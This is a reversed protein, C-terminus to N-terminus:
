SSKRGTRRSASRLGTVIADMTDAADRNVEALAHIYVETTAMRSHRLTAQIAKLPIGEGALYSGCAHRLDHIHASVGAKGCVREWARNVNRPELATGASTTFVLDADLWAKARMRAQRQQRQWAKLAELLGDGAPVTAESADTKLEKAVLRTRGDEGRIRQITLSLAITRAEFDIDGWRLGLGEGRRLGLTLVVLWYCWLPDAGSAELLAAVQDKTLAPRERATGKPPKVLRAVNRTILEDRRADELARRLIAHCYAVTRASLPSAPPLRREGKRLRRRPRGSPKCLLDHQWQRVRSPTLQRLRIHGLDPIIHKRTNDRYSDLTSLAIHGAAAEQTLTTALWRELYVALTDDKAAIGEALQKELAAKKQKAEERTRGYVYRAKGGDPPYATGAWRGDGSRQYVRGERNARTRPKRAPPKRDRM